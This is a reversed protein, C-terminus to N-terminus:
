RAGSKANEARFARIAEVVEDMVEDESPEPGPGRWKRETLIARLQARAKERDVVSVPKLRLTGEVVEAELYDGEELALAKRAEAPLTVQGARLVKVLTMAFRERVATM